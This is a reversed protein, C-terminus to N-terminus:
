RTIGRQSQSIFDLLYAVHPSHLGARQVAAIAEQLRLNSRFLLTYAQKLEALEVRTFGHRQLGRSNLGYLRARDGVATTYPPIDLPVMSGGGIMAYQGIRVFQHIACLGAINVHDGVQIHGALTAVNAMVVQNGIVCDHAVHAHVMFLNDDGIRTVGQDKLTGRHCTVFERFVNRDGIELRTAEGQYGLDQPAGGLCAHPYVRNNRGLRTPGQIVAHDGIDGNDGIEVEAGIVAYAGVHLGDGLRASPHIIATPHIM